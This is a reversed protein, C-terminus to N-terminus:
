RGRVNVIQDEFEPTDRGIGEELDCYSSEVSLTEQINGNAEIIFLNSVERFGDIKRIM